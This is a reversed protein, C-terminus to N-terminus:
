TYMPMTTTPVNQAIKFQAANDCSYKTLIWLYKSSLYSFLIGMICVSNKLNFKLATAMKVPLYYTPVYLRIM